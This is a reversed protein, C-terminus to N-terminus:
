VEYNLQKRVFRKNCQMKTIIGDRRVGILTSMMTKIEVRVFISVACSMEFQRKNVLVLRLVYLNCYQVSIVSCNCRIVSRFSSYLM